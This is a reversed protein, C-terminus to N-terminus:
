CAGAAHTEGGALEMCEQLWRQQGQIAELAEFRELGKHGAPGAGAKNQTAAASSLKLHKSDAEAGPAAMAKRKGSAGGELGTDTQGSKAPAPVMGSTGAISDAEQGPENDSSDDPETAQAAQLALSLAEHTCDQKGKSGYM